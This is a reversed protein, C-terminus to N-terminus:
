LSKHYSGLTLSNELNGWVDVCGFMNRPYTRTSSKLLYSQKLVGPDRHSNFIQFVFLLEM